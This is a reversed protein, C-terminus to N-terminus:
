LSIINITFDVCNEKEGAFSPYLNQTHDRRGTTMSMLQVVDRM